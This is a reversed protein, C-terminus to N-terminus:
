TTKSSPSLFHIESRAPSSFFPRRRQGPPEELRMFLRRLIHTLETNVRMSRKQGLKHLRRSVYLGARGRPPRLPPPPQACPAPCPRLPPRPPQHRHRAAPLAQGRSHAVSPRARRGSPTHRLIRHQNSRTNNEDATNKGPRKGRTHRTRAQSKSGTKYRRRPREACHRTFANKLLIHFDDSAGATGM